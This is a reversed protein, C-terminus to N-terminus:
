KNQDFDMIEPLKKEDEILKEGKMAGEKVVATVEPAVNKMLGSLQQLRLDM